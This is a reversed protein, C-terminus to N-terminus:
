DEVGSAGRLPRRDRLRDLRAQYDVGPASPAALQLAQTQWKVAEDFDGSEAYAAALTSLTEADSFRTAEACQRALQLSLHGNRLAADRATAHIWALRCAASLPTGRHKMAERFQAAAHDVNGQRELELGLGYYAPGYDPDIRISERFAATAEEGRQQASRVLGLNFQAEAYEPNIELAKLCCEAAEDLRGQKRRVVSLNNYAPSFRPRLRIAEAYHQSALEWKAQRQYVAALNNHAPAFDPKLQVVKRYQEMAEDLRGLRHLAAGLSNLAQTQRPDLKLAQQYQEVAADVQGQQLLANGALVYTEADGGVLEAARLAIRNAEDRKGAWTFVKAVNRLAMGQARRDLQGEVRKVVRHIAEEGWADGPSM